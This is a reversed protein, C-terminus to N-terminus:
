ARCCRAIGLQSGTRRPASQRDDIFCRRDNRGGVHRRSGRSARSTGPGGVPEHWPTSLRRTGSGAGRRHNDPQQGDRPTRDSVKTGRRVPPWQMMTARGTKEHVLRLLPIRHIGSGVELRREPLVPFVGATRSPATIMVGTREGPGEMPLQTDEVRGCGVVVEILASWIGDGLMGRDAGLALVTAEASM